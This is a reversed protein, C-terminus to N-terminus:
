HEPEPERAPDHPSPEDPDKPLTCFWEAVLAAAILVVASGLLAVTVTISGVPAPVPRSALFLALGGGFGAMLAGLLSAARALTAIRVARFPDIRTGKQVSRRVPWAAGVVGLALLLLMVPLLAEPTFTPMGSITLAQNLMFGAAAGVAAFVLLILPSTRRM